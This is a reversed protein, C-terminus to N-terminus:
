MQSALISFTVIMYVSSYRNIKWRWIVGLRWTWYFQFLIDMPGHSQWPSRRGILFSVVMQMVHHHLPVRNLLCPARHHVAQEVVFECDNVDQRSSLVIESHKGLIIYTEWLWWHRWNPSGGFLSTQPHSQQCKKTKNLIYKKLDYKYKGIIFIKLMFNIFFILFILQRSISKFDIKFLM